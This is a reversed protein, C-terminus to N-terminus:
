SNIKCAFFKGFRSFGLRACVVSADDNEWSEDHITGYRGEVCVEVRGRALEDKIFYFDEITDEILYVSHVIDGQLSLRVAGEDCLALSFLFMLRNNM